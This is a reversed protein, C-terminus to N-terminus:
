GNTVYTIQQRCLWDNDVAKGLNGLRFEGTPLIDLIMPTGKQTIYNSIVTVIPRYEVPLTFLPHADRDAVMNGGINARMTVVKGSKHVYVGWGDLLTFISGPTPQPVNYQKIQLDTNTVYTKWGAWAGNYNNVYISGHTVNTLVIIIGTNTRKIIYGTCVSGPGNITNGSTSVM